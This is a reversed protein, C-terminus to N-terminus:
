LMRKLELNKEIFTYLNKRIFLSKGSGLQGRILIYEKKEEKYIRLLDLYFEDSIEKRGAM